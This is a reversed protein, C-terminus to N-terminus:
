KYGKKENDAPGEVTVYGVLAEYQPYKLSIKYVLNSNSFRPM